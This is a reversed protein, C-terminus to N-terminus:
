KVAPWDTSEISTSEVHHLPGNKAFFQTCSTMDTKLVTCEEYSATFPKFKGPSQGPETVQGTEPSQLQGM